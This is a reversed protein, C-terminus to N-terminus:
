VGDPTQFVVKEAIRRNLLGRSEATGVKDWKPFEAAALDMAGANIHTLLTSKRGNKLLIVGDKIKPVGPGVNFLISIFADFQNQSMPHTIATNAMKVFPAVDRNFLSLADIRSILKPLPEHGVRAHGYGWTWVGGLDQYPAAAYDEWRRIFIGGKESLQMNM